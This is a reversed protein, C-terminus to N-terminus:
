WWEARVNVAGLWLLTMGTNFCNHPRLRPRPKISDFPVPSRPITIVEDETDCTDARGPIPFFCSTEMKMESSCERSQQLGQNTSKLQKRTWQLDNIYHLWHYERISCLFSKFMSILLVENMLLGQFTIRHMRWRNSLQITNYSSQEGSIQKSNLYKYHTALVPAKAEVWGPGSAFVLPSTNAARTIAAPDLTDKGGAVRPRVRTNLVYHLACPPDSNNM